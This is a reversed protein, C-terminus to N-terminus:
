PPINWQIRGTLGSSVIIHEQTLQNGPGPDLIIVAEVAPLREVLAMGEEPGLIFVGTSLADATIGNRAIITTSLLMEAPRGNRPDLLHGYRKGEHIFYQEYQGSTATTVDRLQLVAIMDERVLPNRIGIRWYGNESPGPGLLGINGGLDVMASTIGSKKLSSLALDVAYGKAIGGSDLEMGEKLFARNQTEDLHLGSLGVFALTSDIEQDTPVKGKERLRWLNMLPGISPDFTGKTMDYFRESESLLFMTEESLSVSEIGASRNLISFESDPRYISMLDNVRRIQDYARETVSEARSEEVGHVTIRLYTGMISKETIFTDNDMRICHSVLLLTFLMILRFRGPIPRNRIPAFPFYSGNPILSM